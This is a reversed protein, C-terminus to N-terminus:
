VMMLFPRYRRLAEQRDVIVVEKYEGNVNIHAVVDYFFFPEGVQFRFKGAVPMTKFNVTMTAGSEVDGFTFHGTTMNTDTNFMRFLKNQFEPFEKECPFGKDWECDYDLVHISSDKFYKAVEPHTYIM